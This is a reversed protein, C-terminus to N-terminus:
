EGRNEAGDFGTRRYDADFSDLVGAIPDLQGGGADIRQRGIALPYRPM